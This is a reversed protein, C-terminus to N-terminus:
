GEDEYRFFLPTYKGRPTVRYYDNLICFNFFTQEDIGIQRTFVSASFVHVRDFAVISTVNQSGFQM